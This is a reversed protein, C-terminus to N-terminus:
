CRFPVFIPLLTALIKDALNTALLELWVVNDASVILKHTALRVVPLAKAFEGHSAPVVISSIM